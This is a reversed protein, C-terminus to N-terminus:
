RRPSAERFGVLWAALARGRAVAEPRMGRGVEGPDVALDFLSVAHALEDFLVKVDGDVAGALHVDPRGTGANIRWTELTVPGRAMPEGRLLPTLDFGQMTAPVPLGLASLLTPAVDILGVAQEVDRPALGPAAIALPIRVVEEYLTTGHELTSHEGLSEGHDASLVVITSATLGESDLADLLRGLERDASMVDGDYGYIPIGERHRNPLHPEFLHVWLFFRRGRLERLTRLAIDMTSRDDIEGPSRGDPLLEDPPYVVREFGRTFAFRPHLIRNFGDNPVAVTAMGSRSLEEALTPDPYAPDPAELVGQIATGPPLTEPTWARLERDYLVQVYTLDMPAQSWMASPVSLCTWAGQAYARRFRVSREALRNANPTAAGGIRDARLSDITVLLVNAGAALPPRPTSNWAAADQRARRGAAAEPLSRLEALLADHEGELLGTSALLEHALAMRDSLFWQTPTLPRVLSPTVAAGLLAMLSLTASVRLPLRRLATAGVALLVLAGAFAVRRPIAYHVPLLIPIALAAMVGAGAALAALARGPLQGDLARLLRGIAWALGVSGLAAVLGAVAFLGTGSSEVREFLRISGAAQQLAASAAFAGAIWAARSGLLRAGVLAAGAVVIAGICVVWLSTSSAGRARDTLLLPLTVILPLALALAGVGDLARRVLARRAIPAAASCALALIMSAAGAGLAATVSLAVGAPLAGWQPPATAAGSAFDLVGLALGGLLFADLAARAGNPRTADHM